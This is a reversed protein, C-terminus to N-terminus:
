SKFEEFVSPASAVFPAHAPKWGYVERSRPSVVVQDMCQADASAVSARAEAVPWPAIADIRGSALAVARAVEEVRATDHTAHFVGEHWKEAALRYLEALDDRHILSWRNRGDGIFRAAGNEVASRWISGVLGRKEGFVIGPRIVCTSIPAGAGKLVIREHLPRFSVYAAPHDVPADEGAAEPCEGLVWVGSTYIVRRAKGASKAGDLLALIAAKDAESGDGTAMHIAVDHSQAGGRVVVPDAYNGRVVKCRMAELAQASGDSRALATVQHGANVLRRVVASGIYGTGGTVFVRM